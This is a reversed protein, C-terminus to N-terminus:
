GVDAGAPAAIAGATCTVTCSACPLVTVLAEPLMVSAM